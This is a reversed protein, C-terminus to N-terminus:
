LDSVVKQGDREEETSIGVSGNHVGLKPLGIVEESRGTIVSISLM